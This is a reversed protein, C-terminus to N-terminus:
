RGFYVGINLQPSANVFRSSYYGGFNANSRVPGFGIGASADLLFNRGLRRQMGWLLNLTPVYETRLAYTGSPLAASAGQYQFYRWMEAHIEAALYNGSFLGHARNHRARGGQNYYYRGGLSVAGTPVFPTQENFYTTHRPVAIDAELQGYLTFKSNIAYEAGASIPLRYPIGFYGGHRFSRAANLGVKLLLRGSETPPATPAPATQALSATPGALLLISPLLYYASRM